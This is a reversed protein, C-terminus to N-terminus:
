KCAGDSVWTGQLDETAVGNDNPNDCHFVTWGSPNGACPYGCPERDPGGGTGGVVFCDSGEVPAVPPCAGRSGSTNLFVTEVRWKGDECYVDPEKGAAGAPAPCYDYPRECGSPGVWQGEDCTVALVQTGSSCTLTHECRLGESECPADAANSFPVTLSAPCGAAQEGATTDSTAADTRTSTPTNDSTTGQKRTTDGTTTAATTTVGANTTSASRTEGSEGDRGGTTSGTPGDTPEDRRAATGVDHPADSACATLGSSGAVLGLVVSQRLRQIRMM